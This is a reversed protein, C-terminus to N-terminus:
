KKPKGILFTRPSIEFLSGGRSLMQRQKNIRDMVNNFNFHNGGKLQDPYEQQRQIWDLSNSCHDSVKKEVCHGMRKSENNMTMERTPLMSMTNNHQTVKTTPDNDDRTPPIPPLCPFEMLSTFGGEEHSSTNSLSGFSSSESSLSSSSLVLSPPNALNDFNGSFQSQNRANQRRFNQGNRQQQKIECRDKRRRSGGGRTGRSRKKKKVSIVEITEANM